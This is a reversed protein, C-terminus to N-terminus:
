LQAVVAVIMIGIANLVYIISLLQVLPFNSLGMLAIGMEDPLPTVIALMGLLLTRDRDKKRRLKRILAGLHFKKVLPKLEYAIKEEFLKLIVWDGVLSGVGGVLGMILPNFDNALIVLLAIAPATTFFSTFLIGAIFVGVLGMGELYTLAAQVLATDLAVVFLVISLTALTTHKYEYRRWAKALWSHHQRKHKKSM